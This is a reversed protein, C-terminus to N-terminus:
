PVCTDSTEWIVWPTAEAGCSVLESDPGPTSQGVLGDPVSLCMLEARVQIQGSKYLCGWDFTSGDAGTGSFGGVDDLSLGKVQLEDLLAAIHEPIVYNFVTSVLTVPIHIEQGPTLPPIAVVQDQFAQGSLSGNIPVKLYIFGSETTEPIGGGLLDLVGSGSSGDTQEEPDLVPKQVSYDYIYTLTKGILNPNEVRVTLLVAYAPLDNFSYQAPFGPVSRTIKLVALAPEVNAHPVPESEVGPPLCLPKKGFAQAWSADVCGPQSQSQKMIEVVQELGSRLAEKCLSECPVGAEAAALEIAYDLGQNALQEFTPLNPPIGTFYTIAIDLGTKLGARCTQNCEVGLTNLVGAAIDVATSKIANFAEVVSKWAEGLGEILMSGWEGLVSGEDEYDAPCIPQHNLMKENLTDYVFQAYVQNQNNPLFDAFSDQMSQFFEDQDISTIFVCGWMAPDAFAIPTFSEIEIQYLNPLHDMVLPQIPPGGPAYSIEVPNSPAGAPQNGNMPVFRAYFNHALSSVSLQWLPNPITQFLPLDAGGCGSPVPRYQALSQFDVQFSGGTTGPSCGGAVLNQPQTSFGTSFPSTTIQWLIHTTGPATTDWYFWRKQDAADSPIEGYKSRFGKAVDGECNSDLNCITMESYDLVIHIKGLELLNGGAWGWVELDLTRVPQGYAAVLAQLLSGLDLEDGQPTLFAQPQTPFREYAGQNISIFFYALDAPQPLTLTHSQGDWGLDSGSQSCAPDALDVQLPQGPNEGAANFSAAYYLVPGSQAPDLYPIPDSSNNADLSAIRQFAASGPSSRYIFFGSEDDSKDNILLTIDCGASSATLDPAAPVQSALKFISQFWFSFRGPAKPEAAQVPAPPLDGNAGVRTDPLGPPTIQSFVEGVSGDEYSDWWGFGAPQDAQIRVVQSTATKNNIDTARVFLSHEGISGPMWKWNGTTWTPDTMDGPTLASVLSGDAWLELRTIHNFRVALANVPIFADAPWHTGDLPAPILVQMAQSNEALQTAASPIKKLLLFIAFISLTTVLLIAGILYYNKFWSRSKNGM